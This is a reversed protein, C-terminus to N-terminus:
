PDRAHLATRGSAWGDLGAAFRGATYLRRVPVGSVSTFRAQGDEDRNIGGPQVSRNSLIKRSRLPSRPRRGMGTGVASPNRDAGVKGDGQTM